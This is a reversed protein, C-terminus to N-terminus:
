ILGSIRYGANLSTVRKTSSLVRKKLQGYGGQMSSGKVPNEASQLGKITM